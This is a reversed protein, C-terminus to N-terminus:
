LRLVTVPPVSAIADVHDMPVGGPGIEDSFFSASVDVVADMEQVAAVIGPVPM